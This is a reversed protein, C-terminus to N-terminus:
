EVSSRPSTGSLGRRLGCLLEDSRVPPIDRIVVRSVVGRPDGQSESVFFLTYAWLLTEAYGDTCKCENKVDKWPKAKRANCIASGMSAPPAIQRKLFSVGFICITRSLSLSLSVVKYGVGGKTRKNRKRNPKQKMGKKKEQTLSRAHTKRRPITPNIKKYPSPLAM